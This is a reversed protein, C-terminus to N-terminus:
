GLYTIMGGVDFRYGMIRGDKMRWQKGAHYRLMHALQARNDAHGQKHGNEGWLEYGSQVYRCEPCHTSDHFGFFGESEKALRTACPYVRQVPNVTISFTVDPRKM